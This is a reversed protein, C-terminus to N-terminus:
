DFQALIEKALRHKEIRCLALEPTNNLALQKFM